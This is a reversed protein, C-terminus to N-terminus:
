YFKAILLSLDGKALAGNQIRDLVEGPWLWYSEVFDDPNWQPTEAYQIEYVKMFMSVGDDYPTLHGLLRWPFQGVDLNLEEEVERRLADEYSEGSRM